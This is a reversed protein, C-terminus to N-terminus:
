RRLLVRWTAEGVIGDPVLKFREQAAIVAKETEDGFVGDVESSLLGIARLRRQLLMVADGSSEKRLIPLNEPRDASPQPPTKPTPSKPPTPAPTTGPNAGARDPVAPLLKSWTAQGVVGDQSLGAAAQFRTVGIMTAESYLGDIAGEYFGLVTLLAQLDQVDVGKSGLTLVARTPVPAAQAIPQALQPVFPPIRLIAPALTLALLITLPIKTVLSRM